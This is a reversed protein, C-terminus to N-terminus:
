ANLNLTLESYYDDSDGSVPKSGLYSEISIGQSLFTQDTVTAGGLEVDFEVQHLLATDNLYMLIQSNMVAIEGLGGLDSSAWCGIVLSWTSVSPGGQTVYSGTYIPQEVYIIPTETAVLTDDDPFERVVSWDTFPSVNDCLYEFFSLIITQIDYITHTVRM